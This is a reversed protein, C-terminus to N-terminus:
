GIITSVIWDASFVIAIGIIVTVLAQANARGTFFLFGVIAVAIISLTKAVPGTVIDLVAQAINEIGGSSQAHAADPFAFTALLVTVIMLAWFGTGVKRRGRTAVASTFGSALVGIYAM